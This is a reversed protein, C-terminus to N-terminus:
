ESEGTLVHESDWTMHPYRAAMLDVHRRDLLPVPLEKGAQAIRARLSDASSLGYLGAIPANKAQVLVKFDGFGKPLVLDRMAMSNAYYDRQALRKSAMAEIFAGLGLNCLFQRQSGFGVPALGEEEGTKVLPTFDVHATIDQQGVRVFASTSVTHKYYSMLTGKKRRETYLEPALDGYDVTVVYGQGLARAVERVWGSAGLNVETEWGEHLHIGQKTLYEEIRPTSPEGPEETLGGDKGLTVYLELLEGNRVTVRHVPFSDVLENSLFCGTVGKFPVGASCVPRVGGSEGCRWQAVDSLRREVPVYTLAERFGKSLHEAYSVIDDALVGSASGMEVVAFRKPQHLLDWMQELQLALLAGFVPHTTPSTYFDGLAGVRRSTDYYGGPAYLAMDMFEAFSIRGRDKIRTRIADDVVNGSM